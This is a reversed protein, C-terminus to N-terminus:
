QTGRISVGLFLFAILVWWGHWINCELKIICIVLPYRHGEPMTAPLPRPKSRRWSALRDHSKVKTCWCFFFSPFHQQVVSLFHLLWRGNSICPSSDSGGGRGGKKAGGSKDSMIIEGGNLQQSSSPNARRRMACWGQLPLLLLLLKGGDECHVYLLLEEESWFLRERERGREKEIRRKQYVGLELKRNLERERERERLLSSGIICLFRILLLLLPALFPPVWHLLLCCYPSLTYLVV